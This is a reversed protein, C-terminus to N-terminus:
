VTQESMCTGINQIKVTSQAIYSVIWSRNRVNRLKVKLPKDDTDESESGSSSSSTIFEKSKYDGGAGARTESVVKKPSSKKKKKERSSNSCYNGNYYPLVM